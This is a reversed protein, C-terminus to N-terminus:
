PTLYPDLYPALLPLYPDLYAGVQELKFRDCEVEDSLLLPLAGAGRGGPVQEPALVLEVEVGHQKAQASFIKVTEALFRLAPVNQKHLDLIGSELKEFALLDPTHPLVDHM